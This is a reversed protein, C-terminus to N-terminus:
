RFSQESPTPVAMNLLKKHERWQPQHTDLIAKFRDNHLRELLHTLEHLVVYEICEVPKKALELNLWIRKQNINCTGWKTKMKKIRWENVEVDLRTQWKTIMPPVIINLQQRYWNEMIAVRQHTATNPRVFLELRNFEHLRIKPAANHENVSLIHPRGLFYHSEGSLIELKEQRPQNLFKAQQQQIWDLKDMIITKTVKKSLSLPASIRVRGDSYVGFRINKIKKRVLEIDIDAIKIYEVEITM